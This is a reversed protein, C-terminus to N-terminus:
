SWASTRTSARTTCCRPPAASGPRSSRTAPPSRGARPPRAGSSTARSPPSGTSPRCGSATLYRQGHLVAKPEGSTGSTFTILCPDEPALEAPPPPTHSPAGEFPVWLTEGSWGAAALTDANRVDAVVLRPQAVALRLALDKPRLQETCPLVVYGQRFCALMTLAWESRNGVLTLIM